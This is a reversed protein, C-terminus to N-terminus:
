KNLRLRSATTTPNLSNWDSQFKVPREVAASGHHRDFKLTTRDNYCGSERSRSKALVQPLGDTRKAFLPMSGNVCTM